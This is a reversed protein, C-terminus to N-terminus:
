QGKQSDIMAFRFKMLECHSIIKLAVDPPANPAYVLAVDRYPDLELAALGQAETRNGSLLGDYDDTGLPNSDDAGQATLLTAGDDPKAGNPAGAARVLIALAS